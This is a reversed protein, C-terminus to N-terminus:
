KKRPDDIYVLMIFLNDVLSMQLIKVYFVLHEYQINYSISSSYGSHLIICYLVLVTMNKLVHHKGPRIVHIRNKGILTSIKLLYNNNCKIHEIYVKSHQLEVNHHTCM